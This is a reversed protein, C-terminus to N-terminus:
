VIDYNLRKELKNKLEKKSNRSLLNTQCNSFYITNNAFDVKKINNLNVICSQHTKFFYNLEALQSDLKTISEKIKYSKNKTIIITYNNNLDKEFYYIDDYPIQYYEHNYTFNFSEKEKNIELAIKLSEIFQDHIDDKKVIFDLMLIKSTYGEKKFCEHSTIIIIPSYWDGNKRIERAFDLGSKGPVELDLLYIKKGLIQQIKELSNEEYKEIIQINYKENTNGILKLIHNKYYQQWKKSDEYIIFNMM